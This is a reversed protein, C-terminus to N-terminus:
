KPMFPQAANADPGAEAPMWTGRPNEHIGFLAGISTKTCISGPILM